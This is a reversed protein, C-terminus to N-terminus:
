DNLERKPSQKRPRTVTNVFCDDTLNTNPYETNNIIEATYTAETQLLGREWEKRKVYLREVDAKPHHMKYM